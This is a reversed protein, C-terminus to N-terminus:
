GKLLPIFPKNAKAANPLQLSNGEVYGQNQVNANHFGGSRKVNRISPHREHYFRELEVDKALVLGESTEKAEMQVLQAKFGRMFGLLFNTRASVTQGQLTHPAGPLMYTRQFQRELDDKFSLDSIKDDWAQLATRSLFEHVFEAMEVNEETGAIELEFGNKKTRPDYNDLWIVEVFYFKSLLHALESMWKQIRGTLGGLYRTTYGREENKEQLEINYKLMMNHAADAANRAEGENSSKALELLHRVKEVIHNTASIKDAGPTGRPAADIGNTKCVSRFAPGHPAEDEVHLIEHVYQHAMEHKLVELVESWPRKMVMQTSFSMERSDNTWRGLNDLEHHLRFVPLSMGKWGFQRSFNTWAMGLENLILAQFENSIAM